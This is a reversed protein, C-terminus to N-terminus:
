GAVRVLPLSKLASLSAWAQPIAYPSALESGDSPQNVTLSGQVTGEEAFFRYQEMERCEGQGPESLM